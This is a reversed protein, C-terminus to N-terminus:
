GWPKVTSSDYRKLGVRHFPSDSDTQQTIAACRVERALVRLSLVTTILHFEVMKSFKLGGVEVSKITEEPSM